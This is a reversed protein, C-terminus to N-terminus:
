YALMKAMYIENQPENHIIMSNRRIGESEYGNKEYLTRAPVNAELVTLELRSIAKTIAWEEAKQLLSSAIGKGQSNAQIALRLEARHTARKADNGKVMLYGVHQGNLIALFIISHGSQKWEIIQKRVKQTSLAREEKGYLLFDSEGEISKQLDALFRADGHGASRILLIDENNKIAEKKNLLDIREFIVYRNPEVHNVTYGADTWAQFHKAPAKTKKWWSHNLYASHPLNQGMIKEIETFHLTITPNTSTSFYDALPIYKKELTTNM